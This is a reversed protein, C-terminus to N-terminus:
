VRLLQEDGRRLRGPLPAAGRDSVRAGRRDPAHARPHRGGRAPRVHGHDDRLHRRRCRADGATSFFGFDLVASTRGSRDVLINGGFQDGHILSPAVPELEGLLTLVRDLLADLGPVRSRLIEGHVAVRRRLLGGLATTFDGAAWFPEEEDLVPLARVAGTAPVGALARLIEVVSASSREDIGDASSTMVTHLPEGHLEREYTVASGDVEQVEEVELIVPTDFPLGGAAVDAYFRQM